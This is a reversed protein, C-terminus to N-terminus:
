KRSYKPLETKKEGTGPLKIRVAVPAGTGPVEAKRAVRIVEEFSTIGAMAKLWGDARLTILGNEIAKSKIENSPRGRVVLSRISDDVIMVEFIAIRGRYGTFNCEPCGRGKLFKASPFLEPFMTRIEEAIPEPPTVQESCMTCVRRVLRQAIVGELCSAVLFPEVGMDVLRTVASPADNTHLTSFVLHGTLSAQVAIEATELDRIEGVLIIDPDHRLISRLINAFTLGIQTHVQIQTIGEMRYEIPDEATIIKVEPSNLRALIAYLTTTKGSGTPGTILIVGHPVGVLHEVFPMQIDTLGLNELDIFMSKRNLIRMNVTEGHATPLVSVRLDFEENGCRVKIRGDHPKRREAINMNALIKVCSAVAKRFRIVGPPVPIPQLVGDIRFRLRLTDEFPEIHIDTANLRIAETIVQNVFRMVGPESTEVSVDTGEMEVNEGATEMLSDITEAGLGYFHKISKSIDAETCLVWDIAVDLLLRLSEAVSISPVRSVALTIVGGNLTLPMVQYRLVVRAPVKKVAEPQITIDAIHKFPINTLQSLTQLVKEESVISEKILLEDLTRGTLNARSMLDQIQERTIVGQQLLNEALEFMLQDSFFRKESLGSHKEENMTGKGEYRCHKEEVGM